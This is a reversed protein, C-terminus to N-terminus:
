LTTKQGDSNQLIEEWLGPFPMESLRSEFIKRTLGPGRSFEHMYPARSTCKASRSPPPPKSFKSGPAGQYLTVGSCQGKIGTGRCLIRPLHM